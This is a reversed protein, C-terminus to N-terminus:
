SRPGETSPLAGDLFSIVRREYEAPRAKLGGTHGGEPVEWGQATPGAARLYKRNLTATDNEKAWILFVPRPAIRPVLEELHEPPTTDSFVAMSASKLVIGPKNLWAGVGTGFTDEDDLEEGITRSGAGESIVAALGEGESATQLMM